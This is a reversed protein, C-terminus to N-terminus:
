RAEEALPRVRIARDSGGIYSRLSLVPCVNECVGCGNCADELVVPQGTESLVIADFPCKESCLNCSSSTWALCIHEDLVAKGLCVESVDGAQAAAVSFPRLAGSSCVAVCEGCFDCSGFSFRMVPTRTGVLGEVLSAFGIARTHCVSVCRGCHNCGALLRRVDQGGPPRVQEECGCFAAVGGLALLSASVGVAAFLGRRSFVLHESGRRRGEPEIAAGQRVSEHADNSENAM